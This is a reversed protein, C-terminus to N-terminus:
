YTDPGYIHFQDESGKEKEAKKAEAEERTAFDGVIYLEDGPRSFSDVGVVRFGKKPLAKEKAEQMLELQTKEAM